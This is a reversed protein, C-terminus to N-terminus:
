KQQELQNLYENTKHSARIQLDHRVIAGHKHLEIMLNKTADIERRAQSLTLQKFYKRRVLRNKVSSVYIWGDHDCLAQTTIIKLIQIKATTIAEAEDANFDRALLLDSCFVAFEELTTPLEVKGLRISNVIEVQTKNYENEQQPSKM